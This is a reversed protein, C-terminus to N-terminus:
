TKIKKGSFRGPRGEVIKPLKASLYNAFTRCLAIQGKPSIDWNAFYWGLDPQDPMMASAGDYHQDEHIEDSEGVGNYSGSEAGSEARGAGEDMDEEPIRQTPPLDFNEAEPYTTAVKSPAKRKASAKTAVNM